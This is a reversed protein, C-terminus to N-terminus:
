LKKVQSVVPEKAKNSSKLVDGGAEFCDSVQDFNNSDYTSVRSLRKKIAAATGRQRSTPVNSSM